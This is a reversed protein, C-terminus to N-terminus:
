KRFASSFLQWPKLWAAGLAGGLCPATLGLDLMVHANGLIPTDGKSVGFLSADRELTGENESVGWM